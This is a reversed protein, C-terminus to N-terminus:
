YEKFIGPILYDTQTYDANGSIQLLLLRIAEEAIKQEDQKIHTFFEKGPSLYNEDICCVKIGRQDVEEKILGLYKAIGYEACVLSDLERNNQLYAGIVDVLSRDMEDSFVKIEDATELFCEPMREMGAADIADWFGNRRDKISSTGNEITTIFGIKNKGISALYDVLKKMAAYNDTRVSSVPIGELQKDILVVPFQEIVLKVIETNYYKGHCPMVILGEAGLDKLFNIEETEKERNGYSFRVCLRYGAKEANLDMAYLMDLGFCSSAHELVLGILNSKKKLKEASPADESRDPVGTIPPNKEPHQIFSGKGKVRTLYGEDKLTNLATTVTIASVGYEAALQDSAPLCTGEELEGRDVKAKIDEYIQKYLYQGKKM